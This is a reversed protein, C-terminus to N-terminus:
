PISREPLRWNEAQTTDSPAPRKPCDGRSCHKFMIKPMLKPVEEKKRLVWEHRPSFKRSPTGNHQAYSETYRQAYELLPSCLANLRTLRISAPSPFHFMPDDGNKPDFWAMWLMLHMAGRLWLQVRRDFTKQDLFIKFLSGPTPDRMEAHSAWLDRYRKIMDLEYVDVLQIDQDYRFLGSQLAAQEDVHLHVTAIVVSCTGLSCQTFALVDQARPDELKDKGTPYWDEDDSDDSFAKDEALFDHFVACPVSITVNCRAAMNLLEPLPIQDSLSDLSEGYTGKWNLHLTDIGPQSWMTQLSLTESATVLENRGLAVAVEHAARRASMVDLALSIEGIKVEEASPKYVSRVVPVEIVRPLLYYSWIEQRIKTPLRPFYHFESAM